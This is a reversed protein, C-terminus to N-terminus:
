ARPKGTKANVEYGLFLLDPHASHGWPHAPSGDPRTELPDFQSRSAFLVCSRCAGCPEGDARPSLCLVRQALREALVRKGIREPGVILTAHGFHGADLAAGAQEYTRQQWPALTPLVSM